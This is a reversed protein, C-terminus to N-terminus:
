GWEGGVAFGQLFRLVVLLIPAIVGVQKFTPLLGVLFTAGGMILLTIVLMSKRGVRDGFHGFVVGGVPRAVFGVGFTAFSALTGMLPSFQPFFLKPFILAAATGYLFFDYWEIATGVFSAFAVRRICARQGIDISITAM